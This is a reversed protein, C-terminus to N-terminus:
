PVLIDMLYLKQRNMAELLRDIDSVRIDDYCKTLGLEVTDMLLVFFFFHFKGLCMRSWVCEMDLVTSM